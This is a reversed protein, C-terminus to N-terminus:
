VQHESSLDVRMMCGIKSGTWLVGVGCFKLVTGTAQGPIVHWNMLRVRRIVEDFGKVTGDQSVAFTLQSEHPVQNWRMEFDSSQMVLPEALKGIWFPLPVIAERGAWSFTVDPAAVFPATCDVTLTCPMQSMPALSFTTANATVQLGDVASGLNLTLAINTPKKNGFFLQIRGRSQEFQTKAGIQLTADEYLIGSPSFLLNTAWQRVQQITATPENSTDAEPAPSLHVDDLGLL